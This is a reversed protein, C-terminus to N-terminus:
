FFEWGLYKFQKKQRSGVEFTEMFPTLVKEDFSHDGAIVFDDVHVCVIGSLEGNEVWTFVSPDVSM